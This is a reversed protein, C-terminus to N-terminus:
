TAQTRGATGRSRHADPPGQQQCAMCLAAMPLVELRDPSIETSCDACCGYLDRDMRWLADDVATLTAAAGARLTRVVDDYALNPDMAIEADLAALQELRFTRDQLLRTRWQPLRAALRNQNYKNTYLSLSM